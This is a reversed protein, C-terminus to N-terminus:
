RSSSVDDNSQGPDAEVQVREVKPERRSQETAKVNGQAADNQAADTSFAFVTQSTFTEGPELVTSPFNPQNISDPFHQTELCCASQHAYTKDDKGQAGTLFNGSYFQIGPETTSITLRRGSAPDFLMAANRMESEGQPENLVFNHDYGLAATDVLESIRKGIKTPKRFDLPTGEVPALEGTPILTDDVPTYRDANLRLRHDLITSSGHGSLNFYAHNTLNVPTKADTTAEYRISLRNRDKLLLYTVKATLEGPYGEEGDPSVYTFTVGQGRNNEFPKADWVVKDFSRDGGGHLHNPENNIALNYEKGDLTFKGKAIRNAVRGAICGFYQNAESEYGSVDDFGLVVDAMKGDRDPVMLSVLTAGRTMVQAQMGSENKLRYLEVAKGDATEGFASSSPPAAQVNSAAIAVISTALLSASFINAAKLSTRFKRATARFPASPIMTNAQKM